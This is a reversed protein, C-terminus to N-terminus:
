PTAQTGTELSFISTTDSADAAVVRFTLKPEICNGVLDCMGSLGGNTIKTKYKRYGNSRALDVNSFDSTTSLDKNIFRNPYTFATNYASISGPQEIEVKFNVRDLGVNYLSNVTDTNANTGTTIGNGTIGVDSISSYLVQSNNAAVFKSVSANSEPNYGPITKDWATTPADFKLFQEIAETKTAALGNGGM